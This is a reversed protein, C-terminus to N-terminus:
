PKVVNALIAAEDRAVPGGMVEAITGGFLTGMLGTNMKSVQVRGDDAEWVSIACPMLSSAWRDSTLVREAYRPHCLQFVAVRPEFPVGHKALSKDLRLTGPSAWGKAEAGAEIAAVTEDFGLRSEHTVIMMGPMLQWVALAALGVGLVVGLGTWLLPKWNM